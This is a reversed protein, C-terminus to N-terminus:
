LRLNPAIQLLRQRVVRSHIIGPIGVGGITSHQAACDELTDSPCGDLLRVAARGYNGAAGLNGQKAYLVAIAYAYEAARRPDDERLAYFQNQLASLSQGPMQKRGRNRTEFFILQVLDSLIEEDTLGESIEEEKFWNHVEQEAETFNASAHIINYIARGEINALAPSDISYDGRITGPAALYPLTDGVIKRVTDVAHVGRLVMVVILGSSLYSFIWERIASGIELLDKRGFDDSVDLGYKDYTQSTKRGLGLLWEESKPLHGEIQERTALLVKLAVVKLDARRFRLVIDRALGRDTADPKIIVLTRESTMQKAREDRTM